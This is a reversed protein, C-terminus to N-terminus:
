DKLKQQFYLFINVKIELSWSVSFGDFGWSQWKWLEAIWHIDEIDSVDVTQTEPFTIWFTMMCKYLDLIICLVM